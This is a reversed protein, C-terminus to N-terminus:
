SQFSKIVELAPPPSLPNLKMTFSERSDVLIMGFTSADSVLATSYTRAYTKVFMDVRVPFALPYRVPVVALVEMGTGPPCEMVLYIISAM